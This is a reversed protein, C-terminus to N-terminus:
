LQLVMKSGSCHLTVRPLRGLLRSLPEKLLLLTGIVAMADPMSVDSKMSYKLIHVLLYTYATTVISGAKGPKRPAMPGTKGTEIPVM